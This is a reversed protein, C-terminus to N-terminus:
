NVNYLVLNTRYMESDDIIELKHQDPYLLTLRRQIIESGLGKEYNKRPQKLRNACHFALKNEKIEIKINISNAAKQESHKFANEIFPIFLMPAIKLNESNGEVSYIICDPVSTRLKQLDIYKEIYSLEKSLSIKETGTEYLMFRLIDSLKNLYASAKDPQKEILIDINNITNFLFHPQIQAKILGLEMEYNKRSLEEKLKIENYWTIFGRVAFAITGHILSLFSIMLLEATAQSWGNHVIYRPGFSLYLAFLCIIGSGISVFVSFLVLRLVKKKYLLRTFLITYFIYFGIFAPLVTVLTLRSFLLAQVLSPKNLGPM